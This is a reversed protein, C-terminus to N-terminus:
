TRGDNGKGALAKLWGIFTWEENPAVRYDPADPDFNVLGELIQPILTKIVYRLQRAKVIEGPQKFPDAKAEEEITKEAVAQLKQLIIQMGESTLAEKLKSQEHLYQAKEMDTYKRTAVPHVAM